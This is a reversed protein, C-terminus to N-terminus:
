GQKNTGNGPNKTSQFNKNAPHDSSRDTPKNKKKMWNLPNTSKAVRKMLNAFMGQQQDAAHQIDEELQVRRQFNRGLLYRVDRILMEVEQNMEEMLEAFTETVGTELLDTLEAHLSDFAAEFREQANQWRQFGQLFVQMHHKAKDSPEQVMVVNWDVENLEQEEKLGEGQSPLLTKNFTNDDDMVADHNDATADATGRQKKNAVADVGNVVRNILHEYRAQSAAQYQDLTTMLAQRRKHNKLLHSAVDKELVDMSNVMDEHFGAVLRFLSKNSASSSSSSTEQVTTTTNATNSDDAKVGLHEQLLGISVCQKLVGEMRELAAQRRMMCEQLTQLKAKCVADNSDRIEQQVTEWWAEEEDNVQEQEIMMSADNPDGHNGENSYEYPDAHTGNTAAASDVVGRGQEYDRSRLSQESDDTMVALPESSTEYDYNEFQVRTKKTPPPMIGNVSSDMASTPPLTMEYPYVDDNTRNIKRTTCYTITLTPLDCVSTALKKRHQEYLFFSM